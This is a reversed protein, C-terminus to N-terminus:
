SSVGRDCPKARDGYVFPVSLHNKARSSGAFCWTLMYFPMKNGYIHLCPFFISFVYTHTHTHIYIYIYAEMCAIILAAILILLANQTAEAKWGVMPLLGETLAPQPAPIKAHPQGKSRLTVGAMFPFFEAAKLQLLPAM